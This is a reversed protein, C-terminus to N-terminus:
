IILKIEITVFIYKSNSTFNFYYNRYKILFIVYYNLRHLTHTCDKSSTITFTHIM